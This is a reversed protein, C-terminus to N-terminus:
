YAYTPYEFGLFVQNSGVNYNFLFNLSLQKIRLIKLHFKLNYNFREDVFYNTYSPDIIADSIM